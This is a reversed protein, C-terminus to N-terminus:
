GSSTLSSAPVNGGLRRRRSSCRGVWELLTLAVIIGLFAIGLLQAFLYGGRAFITRQGTVYLTDCIVGPGDDQSRQALVRGGADVIQSIGSSASRVAGRRLEISRFVAMDAQQRRQQQPWRAPNMVPGLLLDAGQQELRRPIDTFDADFCVYMGVRAFSTPLTTQSHAPNGDEFFPLPVAKAQTGIVEGEPGILMAVNDYYCDAAPDARVHAGVCIYSGSRRALRALDAVFPHRLDAFGAITHEPLVVFVPHSPDRIAQLTLDLYLDDDDSEAQVCAVPIPDGSALSEPQSVAGMSVVVVAIIGAPLCAAARRRCVCYAVAANFDALLFSLGYVGGISAIQAVWVNHAQSYGLALYALRLRDLGEARLIEQGTFALPVAWLMAALGFRATLMQAVRFSFGMWISLIVIAGGALLGNIGFLWDLGVRYFVLGVIAGILLAQRPTLAPLRVLWPVLAVWALFHLNAPWYCAAMLGGSVVAALVSGVWVPHGARGAGDVSHCVIDDDNPM